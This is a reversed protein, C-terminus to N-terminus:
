LWAMELKLSSFVTLQRPWAGLPVGVTRLGDEVVGTVVAGHGVVDHGDAVGVDAVVGFGLAVAVEGDLVRVTRCPWRRGRTGRGRSIVGFVANLLQDSVRVSKKLAM